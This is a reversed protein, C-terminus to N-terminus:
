LLQQDDGIIERGGTSDEHLAALNYGDGMLKHLAESYPSETMSPEQKLEALNGELQLSEKQVL